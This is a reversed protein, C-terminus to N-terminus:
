HVHAGKLAGVVPQTAREKSVARRWSVIEFLFAGLVVFAAIALGIAAYFAYSGIQWWGYS